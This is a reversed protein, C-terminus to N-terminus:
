LFLTLLEERLARDLTGQVLAEPQVNKALSRLPGVEWVCTSEVILM